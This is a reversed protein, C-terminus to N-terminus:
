HDAHDHREGGMNGMADRLASESDILFAGSTVVSEGEHVGSVIAVRGASEFGTEVRRPEFRGEGLSVVVFTGDSRHLLASLPM